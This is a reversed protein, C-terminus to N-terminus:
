LKCPMIVLIGYESNTPSKITVYDTPATLHVHIRDKCFIRPLLALYGSDLGINNCKGEPNDRFISKYDPYKGDTRKCIHQAHLLNKDVTEVLVNNEDYLYVNVTQVNAPIKAPEFILSEMAEGAEITATYLIHGNTAVVENNELSIHLGDLYYRVDKTAKCLMASRYQQGTMTCIRDPLNNTNM